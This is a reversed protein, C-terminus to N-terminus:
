DEKLELMEEAMEILTCVASADLTNIWKRYKETGVMDEKLKKNEEQIRKIRAGMEAIEEDKPDLKIEFKLAYINESFKFNHDALSFDIDCTEINNTDTNYFKENAKIHINSKTPDEIEIWLDFQAAWDWVSVLNKDDLNEDPNAMALELDRFAALTTDDYYGKDICQMPLNCLAFNMGGNSNWNEGPEDGTFIYWHGKEFKDFNRVKEM